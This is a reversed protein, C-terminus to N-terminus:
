YAKRVTIGDKKRDFSTNYFEVLANYLYWPDKSGITEAASHMALQPLGIDISDISVHRQNLGGLTESCRMDTRCTFHQYPVNVNDCIGKFLTSTVADTTYNPNNKIVIGQNLYVKNTPDSKSPSNPHLAHANDASIVISNRLASLLDINSSEAIRKLVDMLFESDAGQQTLSGTEEDNFTCFMNFNCNDKSNVFSAFAPYVCGLDDLRPALIFEDNVGIYKAKDRNYLSLDYDCIKEFKVNHQKLYEDIQNSIIDEDDTLSIIPLMDIQPNLTNKNNVDRNIHIAQDTIVLLDKDINILKKIYTNNQKIIVRGAISLPRDLWSRYLMEGHEDTNLKLYGNEYIESNPKILFSPSDCHTAVINFSVNEYKNTMKFAILSSDNRSVFYNGGHSLNKWQEYEYLEEFGYKLLKEKLNKVCYFANPTSNIFDLFDENKM